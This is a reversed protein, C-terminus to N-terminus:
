SHSVPIFSFFGQEVFYFGEAPPHYFELTGLFITFPPLLLDPLMFGDEQVEEIGGLFRGEQHVLFSDDKECVPVCGAEVTERRFLEGASGDVVMNGVIADAAALFLHLSDQLCSFRDAEFSPKLPLHEFVAEVGYNVTPCLDPPDCIVRRIWAWSARMLDWSSSSRNLRALDFAM